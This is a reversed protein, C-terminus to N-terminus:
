ADDGGETLAFFLDELSEETTDSASREDVFKGNKMIYAKDWYDEVSDIMHTSILMAAGSQRLELFVEKLQKIAHPDLGVMPEDFVIVSPRHVLACCISLKQQMGKSLEKGLKDKKDLLEFRELLQDATGDDEMKYARLMFELHEGVTLIDYVAPMEPVYGLRKKADLSKNGFSDLLIEGDFRLLGAICKIITSKGAGNPGLLVAIEGDGIQFSVDQCAILKGYKKTVRNVQLM